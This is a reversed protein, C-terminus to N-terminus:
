GTELELRILTVLILQSFKDNTQMKLVAIDMYPDAGIVEAKYEKSNVKILFIM